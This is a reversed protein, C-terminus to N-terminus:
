LRVNNQLTFNAIALDAGSLPEFTPDSAFVESNPFDRRHRRLTQNPTAGKNHEM